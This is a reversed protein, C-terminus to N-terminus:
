ADKMWQLLQSYPKLAAETALRSVSKLDALLVPSAYRSLVNSMASIRDVLPMGTVFSELPSQPSRLALVLERFLGGGAVRRWVAAIRKQTRILMQVESVHRGIIHSFRQGTATALMEDRARTLLQLEEETPQFREVVPGAPEVMAFAHPAPSPSPATALMAANQATIIELDWQTQFASLIRDIRAVTGFAQATGIPTFGAFLLGVLNGNMDLVASGSDGRQAFFNNPDAEVRIAHTYARTTSPGDDRERCVANDDVSVNSVVGFKVSATKAGRIQVRANGLANIQGENLVGRITGLDRLGASADVCKDIQILGVDPDIQAAVVTGVVTAWCKSCCTCDNSDDPQGLRRGASIAVSPDGCGAAVHGNTLIMNKGTKRSKAMCGLTGTNSHFVTTTQSTHETTSYEIQSGGVLPRYRGIDDFCEALQSEVVDTKIGEIEGPILENSPIESLAVKRHVYATIVLENTRQGRVFRCGVGTGHVGPISLLREKTREKTDIARSVAELDSVQM